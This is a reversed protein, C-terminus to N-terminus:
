LASVSFYETAYDLPQDDGNDDVYGLEGVVYYDGNALSVTKSVGWKRVGTEPPVAVSVTYDDILADSLDYIKLKQYFLVPFLTGNTVHSRQWYPFVPPMQQHPELLVIMGGIGPLRAVPYVGQYEVTSGGTLGATALNSVSSNGRQEQGFGLSNLTIQFSGVLLVVAFVACLSSRM